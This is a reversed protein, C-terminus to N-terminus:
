GRRELLTMLADVPFLFLAHDHIPLAVLTDDGLHYTTVGDGQYEPELGDPRHDAAPDRTTIVRVRAQRLQENREDDTTLTSWHEAYTVELTRTVTRDQTTPAQELAELRGTLRKFTTVYLDRAPGDYLGDLRDQQLRELHARVDELEATHDEGPITITETMELPGLAKLFADYTAQTLEDVRIMRGRRCREGA